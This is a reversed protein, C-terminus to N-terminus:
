FIRDKQVEKHTLVIYISLLSHTSLPIKSKSPKEIALLNLHPVPNQMNVLFYKINEKKRM